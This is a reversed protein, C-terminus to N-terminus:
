EHRKKVVFEVPYQTPPTCPALAAQATRTWTSPQTGPNATTGLLATVCSLRPPHRPPVRFVACLQSMPRQCSLQPSQIICMALGCLNNTLSGNTDDSQDENPPVTKIAILGFGLGVDSASVCTPCAQLM